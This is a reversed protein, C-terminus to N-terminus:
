MGEELKGLGGCEGGMQGGIGAVRDYADGVEYYEEEL